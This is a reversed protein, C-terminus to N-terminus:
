LLEFNTCVVLATTVYSIHVVHFILAQVDHRLLSAANAYIPCPPCSSILKFAIDLLLLFGLTRIPDRFRWVHIDQACRSSAGEQVPVNQARQRPPFTM